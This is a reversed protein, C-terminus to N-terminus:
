LIVISKMVEKLFDQSLTCNNGIINKDTSIWPQQYYSVKCVLQCDNIDCDYPAVRLLLQYKVGNVIERYLKLPEVLVHKRNLDYNLHRLATDILSDVGQVNLSVEDLCGVCPIKEKVNKEEVGTAVTPTLNESKSVMVTEQTSKMLNEQSYMNMYMTDDIPNQYNSDPVTEVSSLQVSDDKTPIESAIQDIPFCEVGPLTKYTNDTTFYEIYASCRLIISGDYCIQPNVCEANVEIELESIQETRQLVNRVSAFSFYYIEKPDSNLYNLVSQAQVQIKEPLEFQRNIQENNQVDQAITVSIITLLSLLLM